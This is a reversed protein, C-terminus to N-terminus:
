RYEPDDIWATFPVDVFGEGVKGIENIDGTFQPNSETVGEAYIYNNNKTIINGIYGQLYRYAKGSEDFRIEVRRLKDARIYSNAKGSINGPLNALKTSQTGMDTALYFSKVNEASM